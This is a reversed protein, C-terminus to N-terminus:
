RVVRVKIPKRPRQSPLQKLDEAITEVPIEEERGLWGRIGKREIAGDLKWGNDLVVSVVTEVVTRSIEQGLCTKGGGGFAFGPEPEGPEMFREPVFQGPQPYVSADRSAGVFYLWVDWGAPVVTQRTDSETERLMIDQEVRRM